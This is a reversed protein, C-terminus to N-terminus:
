GGELMRLLKDKIHQDLFALAANEDRDLLIRYLEQWEADSLSLM